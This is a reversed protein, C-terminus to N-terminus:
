FEKDSKKPPENSAKTTDVKNRIFEDFKKAPKNKSNDKIPYFTKWGYQISMEIIEEFTHPHCQTQAKELTNLMGKWQNVGRISKMEMCLDLYQFLLERISDLNTWENIVDACKQYLNKKKPKETVDTQFLISQNESETNDKSLTNNSHKKNNINKNYIDELPKIDLQSSAEGSTTCDNSMKDLLRDFDLKYYNKAPLGKKVVELIGYMKLDNIGKRQYYASLGTNYEIKDQTEFFMDDVLEGNDQYYIYQSCFEGVLIAAELGITRILHKNVQIYGDTSLLRLMAQKDM